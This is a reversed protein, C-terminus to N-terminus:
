RRTEMWPHRVRRRQLELHGLPTWGVVATDVPDARLAKRLVQEVRDRDRRPMPALDIVIQGGLGRLRLQRPLDRAAEINAALGAAPTTAPGTNVDVAVLARTPEIFLSGGSPLSARPGLAEIADLAGSRQLADDGTEVRDPAIEAWDRWAQEQADPASLLLEPPGDVDAMIATALAVTARIDEVLDEDAALDAASRLILGLDEPAGTLLPAALATLEERRAADRISRAVNLGPAGHTAVVYRSRFTLRTTVPPAKGPEAHSTVQVLLPKGPSVGRGGRLFGQGAAGLDVFLGGQGKMPRGARARWIAGPALDLGTAPEVILDDLQGDRMLAAAARGQLAPMPGIAITVGKM